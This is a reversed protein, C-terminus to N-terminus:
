KWAEKEPQDFLADQVAKQLGRWHDEGGPYRLVTEIATRLRENGGVLQWMECRPKEPSISVPSMRSFEIELRGYYKTEVWGLERVQMMVATVALLVYRERLSAKDELYTAAVFHKRYDKLQELWRDVTHDLDLCKYLANMTDESYGILFLGM